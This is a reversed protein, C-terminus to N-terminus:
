GQVNTVCEGWKTILWWDDEGRTFIRNKDVRNRAYKIKDVVNIYKDFIPLEYIIEFESRGQTNTVIDKPDPFAEEKFLEQYEMPLLNKRSPPLISVLQQFPTRPTNEKFNPIKWSQSYKSLDCLFPPYHYKYYFNWDPPTGRNYYLYVFWLMDLYSYCVNAIEKQEIKLWSSYYENRFNEFNLKGNILHKELLPFDHDTRKELLSPEEKALAYLLDTFVRKDLRGKVILPHGLQSYRIFIDDFGNVFVRLCELKPCFDNGLLSALFVFAKTADVIHIRPNKAHIQYKICNMKITYFQKEYGNRSSHDVKFLFYDLNTLLGLLLLDGDPSMLIVRTKPPFSRLYQMCKAEGEGPVNHSSFIFKKISDKVWEKQIKFRIFGCLEHMFVTGCSIQTSDFEGQEVTSRPYRRKRQQAMKSVPAVGDIGLYFEECDIVNLLEIIQDWVYQYLLQIKENYSLEDNERIATDNDGFEFAKMAAAYILPNGDLAFAKFKGPIIQNVKYYRVSNSFRQRIFGDLTIVGM